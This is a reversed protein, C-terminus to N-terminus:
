AALDLARGADQALKQVATTGGCSPVASSVSWGYLLDLDHHSSCPGFPTLSRAVSASTASGTCRTPLSRRPSLM